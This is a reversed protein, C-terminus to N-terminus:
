GTSRARSGTTSRSSRPRTAGRWSARAAREPGARRVPRAGPRTRARGTHRGSIRSGAIRSSGPGPHGTRGRSNRPPIKAASRRGGAGRRGAGQRRRGAPGAPVFRPASTGVGSALDYGPRARFGTVTHLKGGQEFVRHQQRTARGRPRPRAHAALQYLLPNVPGLPHGAVQGALAIIGAFEPTAESTGCTPYWCAPQGRFSQYMVVAGSCSASMSIDPVGPPARDGGGRRGPVGPRRLVGVPRRRRGAPEPALRRLTRQTARSFTDNWVTDPARHGKPALRLHTGGVGTVLPDSDPWSTVPHLYFTIGDFRVDAAGSDGAAALVTVGNRAADVYAGRLSPMARRSPFTQETAGFSQSIVGGPSPPDRVERGDRDAPLRDHGREGLDPDRGAPHERGPAMAHAYEVDLDTEGAWGERNSNPRYPPVTGAPQIVKLSPPAPLRFTKDFVKLDHRVTPSGFSDVIVITQGQGTIGQHLLRGVHYAARVQFPQYCAIKYNAECYSTSPPGAQDAQRVHVAAPSIVVPATAAAAPAGGAAASTSAAVAAAMAASGVAISLPRRVRM